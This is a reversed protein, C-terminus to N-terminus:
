GDRADCDLLSLRTKGFFDGIRNENGLSTNFLGRSVVRAILIRELDNNVVPKRNVMAM